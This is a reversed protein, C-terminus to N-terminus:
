PITGSLLSSQFQKPRLSPPLIPAVQRLRVAPQRKVLEAALEPLREVHGDAWRYEITVNQNEVFGNETLGNQFAAVLYEYTDASQGNLFGIVPMAPQQARAALPVAAAAGSIVAIVERRRM